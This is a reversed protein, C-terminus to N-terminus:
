VDNLIKIVKRVEGSNISTPLNIIEKSILEARPCSGSRYGVRKLNISKPAVVQDYWRGLYVNERRAKELLTQPKGVLYPYRLLSLNKHGLDANKKKQFEEYIQCANQRRKCMKEYKELQPLLLAALANPYAKNLSPDYEGTKEKKTIESPILNLKIIIKHLIKGLYFDYTYRILLVLPKYILCKLLFFSSPFDLKKEVIQLHNILRKNSTIIAGGFVSSLAKSRGFSLLISENNFQQIARAVNSTTLNNSFGHALDEVIFLNHKMAFELIKKRNTPQLGFTHQLILVKASNNTKKELDDYDMSFTKTEIDIYKPQLDNAIIPLVVAECTFAQILVESNEPLSLSKLLQYLAARGTLFLSASGNPFYAKLKKKVKLIADGRQWRWPRFLTKFAQWADQWDENPAFDTSIM